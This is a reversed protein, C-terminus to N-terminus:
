SEISKRPTFTPLTVQFQAPLNRFEENRSKYDAFLNINSTALLKRLDLITQEIETIIHNIVKEQNNIMALHKSDMNDIESQMKRIVTDIEKRIAKGQKKLETSLKKSHKKANAKQTPIISVAQQYKPYIFKEIEELDKKIIQKKGRLIEMSEVVRHELHEDSSICKVCVPIDCQECRLECQKSSHIKCNPYNITTGRKEFLVVKHERSLDSLHVGVCPICLKIHCIDCFM